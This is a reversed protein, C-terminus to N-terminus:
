LDAGFSAMRLDNYTKLRHVRGQYSLIAECYKHIAELPVAEGVLVITKTGQSLFRNVLFSYHIKRDENDGKHFEVSVNLNPRVWGGVTNALWHGERLSHGAPCLFHVQLDDTGPIHFSHAADWDKCSGVDIIVQYKPSKVVMYSRDRSSTPTVAPLAPYHKARAAPTLRWLPPLSDPNSREFTSGENGYIVPNVDRATVPALQSLGFIDKDATRKQSLKQAIEKATLGIMRKDETDSHAVFVQVIDNLAPPVAPAPPTSM